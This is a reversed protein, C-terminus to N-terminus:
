FLKEQSGNKVKIGFYGYAKETVKRGSPTRQLLGMQMLYPEYVDEITDSDESVSAAITEVGVPGGRFKEIITMLIKR